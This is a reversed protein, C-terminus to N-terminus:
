ISIQDQHLNGGGGEPQDPGTQSYRCTSIFPFNGAISVLIQEVTDVVEALIVVVAGHNPVLVAFSSNLYMHFKPILFCAPIGENPTVTAVVIQIDLIQYKQILQVPNPSWLELQLYWGVLLWIFIKQFFTLLLTYANIFNSANDFLYIHLYIFPIFILVTQEQKYEKQIYIYESSQTNVVYYKKKM